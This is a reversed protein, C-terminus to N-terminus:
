DIKIIEEDNVNNTLELIKIIELSLTPPFIDSVIQKNKILQYVHDIELCLGEGDTTFAFDQQKILQNKLDYIRYTYAMRCNDKKYAQHYKELWGGLKIYGKTGCIITTLDNTSVDSGVCNTIINNQHRIHLSSTAIASNNPYSNDLYNITKARGALDLDIFFEYMAGALQFGVVKQEKAPNQAIGTSSVKIHSTNIYQIEGIIGQKIEAKM